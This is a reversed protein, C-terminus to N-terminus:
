SPGILRNCFYIVTMSHLTSHDTYEPFLQQYRFLTHKMAFVTDTFRQHLSHSMQQLRCELLYEENGSAM